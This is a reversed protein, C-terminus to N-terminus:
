KESPKDLMKLWGMLAGKVKETRKMSRENEVLVLSSAVIALITFLLLLIFMLIFNRDLFHKIPCTSRISPKKLFAICITFVLGCLLWVGAIVYGHVGTFATSAWYHKNTIDYGGNYSKLHRLPDPRNLGSQEGFVVRAPSFVSTSVLFVVFPVLVRNSIAM